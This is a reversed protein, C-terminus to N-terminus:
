IPRTQQMFIRPVVLAATPISSPNATFPTVVVHPWLGQLNNFLPFTLPLLRLPDRPRRKGRVGCSRSRKLILPSPVDDSIREITIRVPRALLSFNLSGCSDHEHSTGPFHDLQLSQGGFSRSSSHPCRCFEQIYEVCEVVNGVQM